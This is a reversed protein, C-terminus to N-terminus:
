KRLGLNAGPKQNFIPDSLIESLHTALGSKTFFSFMGKQHDQQTEQLIKQLDTRLTNIINETSLEVLSEYAISLAKSIDRVGKERNTHVPHTVLLLSIHDLAILGQQIDDWQQILRFKDQTIDELAQNRVDILNNPVRINKLNNIEDNINEFQEDLIKAKRQIPLYPARFSPDKVVVVLEYAADNALYPNAQHKLLENVIAADKQMTAFVLPNQTNAIGDVKAGHKLLTTVAQVNNNEIASLLPTMKKQGVDYTLNPDADKELLFDVMTQQHNAIAIMLPPQTKSSGDIAAGREILENAKKRDGREAASLFQTNVTLLQKDPDDQYEKIIKVIESHGYASARELPSIPRDSPRFPPNSKLNPDAGAELLAKVQSMDGEGAALYLWSTNNCDLQNIKTPTIKALLTNLNLSIDKVTDTIAFIDTLFALNSNNATPPILVLGKLLAGALRQEVPVNGEDPIPTLSLVQKGRENADFYYWSKTVPNYNFSIAHNSIGIMFSLPAKMKSVQSHLNQFFNVIESFNSFNSFSALKTIGGRKDLLSPSTLKFAKNIDQTNAREERPLLYNVDELQAIIFVTQLFPEVTSLAQQALDDNKYNERLRQIEKPLSDENFREIPIQNLLELRKNFLEIEGTLNAQMAAGTLGLCVGRPNANLGYGRIQDIIQKHPSRNNM